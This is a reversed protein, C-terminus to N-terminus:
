RTILLQTSASGMPAVLHVTYVGSSLTGLDITASGTVNNTPLTVEIRGLMDTIYVRANPVSNWHLTATSSAPNPYVSLAFQSPAAPERVALPVFTISDGFVSSVNGANDFVRGYVKKIGASNNGGYLHLDWNTVTRQYMQLASWTVSDSSFQMQAPGSEADNATVNLTVLISTTQSAGSNINLSGTPPTRDIQFPGLDIDPSWNDASDVARLHFYWNGDVLPSSIASDKIGLVVTDPVTHATHDWLWNYGLGSSGASNATYKWRVSDINKSTWASPALSSFLIVPASPPVTNIYFPGETVVQSWNGASDVARLHFYWSRGDAIPQTASAVFWLGANPVTAPLTDIAYSYGEIGSLADTDSWTVRLTDNHTWAHPTPQISRVIPLEPAVTDIKVPGYTTTASWNGASDEAAIHVYWKGNGLNRSLSAINSAIGSNVITTASTDIVTAYGTLGSTADSANWTLLVKPNNTWQNIAPSATLISPTTPSTADIKVPGFVVESSLNGAVDLARVHFYWDGADALTTTYSIASTKV